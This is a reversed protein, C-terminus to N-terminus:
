NKKWNINHVACYTWLKHSVCLVLKQKASFCKSKLIVKNVRWGTADCWKFPWKMENLPKILLIKKKKPAESTASWNRVQSTVHQEKFTWDVECTAMANITLNMRAITSMFQEIFDCLVSTVIMLNDMLQVDNSESPAIWLHRICFLREIFEDVLDCQSM